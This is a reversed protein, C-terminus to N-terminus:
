RRRFLLLALFARQHDSPAAAFRQIATRATAILLNVDSSKFKLSPDYDAGHRKEQLEVVSRAFDKLTQDFDGRAAYTKLKNPLTTKQVDECLERLTRHDIGRYVLAYVASARQQPTSGVFQDAAKQSLFHFVGYYAASIARRIDVQRPAGRASSEVLRAAQEFFHDPNPITM